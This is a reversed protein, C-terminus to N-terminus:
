LNNEKLTPLQRSGSNNQVFSRMFDRLVASAPVGRVHCLEIFADRLDRDIRIRLGVNKTVMDNVIDCPYM